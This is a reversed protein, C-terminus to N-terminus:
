RTIAAVVAAALGILGGILMLPLGSSTTRELVCEGPRAPNYFVRVSGGVPYAMLAKEAAPQVRYGRRDFAIRSGYFTAAGVEYEYQVALFYTTMEAADEDGPITTSEVKAALMRGAVAPWTGSAQTKRYRFWGLLFLGVAIVAPIIFLAM